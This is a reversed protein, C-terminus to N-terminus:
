KEGEKEAYGCYWDTGGCPGILGCEALGIYHKCDKCTILERVKKGTLFKFQDAANEDVETIIYYKM